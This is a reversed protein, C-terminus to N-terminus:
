CTGSPTYETAVSWARSPSYWGESGRRRAPRPTPPTVTHRKRGNCVNCLVALPSDESGTSAFPVVHDATLYNPRVVVHAPVGWGPCVDGHETRWEKVVQARRKREAHSREPRHPARPTCKRHRRGWALEGCVACPQQTKGVMWKPQSM